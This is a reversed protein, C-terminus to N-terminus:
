KAALVTEQNPASVTLIITSLCIIVPCIRHACLPTRTRRVKYKAAYNYPVWHFRWLGFLNHTALFPALERMSGLCWLYLLVTCIQNFLDFRLDKLADHYVVSSTVRSILCVSLSTCSKYSCLPLLQASVLGDKPQQILFCNNVGSVLSFQKYPQPCQCLGPPRQSGAFKQLCWCSAPCLVTDRYFSEGVQCWPVQKFILHPQWLQLDCKLLRKLHYSNRHLRGLSCINGQNSFVM